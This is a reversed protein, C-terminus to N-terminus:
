TGTRLRPARRGRSRSSHCSGAMCFTLRLPTQSSQRRPRFERRQDLASPRVRLPTRPAAPPQEHVSVQTAACQYSSPPM